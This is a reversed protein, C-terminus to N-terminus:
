HQALTVLLVLLTLLLGHIMSQKNLKHTKTTLNYAAM